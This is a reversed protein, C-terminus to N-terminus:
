KSFYILQTEDEHYIRDFNSSKNIKYFDNTNTVRNLAKKYESKNYIRFCLMDDVPNIKKIKSVQYNQFAMGNKKFYDNSNSTCNPLLKAYTMNREILATKASLGFWDNNNLTFSKDSDGWTCDVHCWEGNLKVINWAHLGQSYSKGETTICPINMNNCLHKFMHAYGMCVTKGLVVSYISQNYKANDVYKTNKIIYRYAKYAKEYDSLNNDISSLFDSTYKDLKNQAKEIKSNSMNLIPTLSLNDGNDCYTYQSSTGDNNSVGVYFLEPNDYLVFETYKSVKDPDSTSVNVGALKDKFITYVERYLKKNKDNLCSYYYMKSEDFEHIYKESLLSDNESIDEVDTDNYDFFDEGTDDTTDTIDDIISDDIIDDIDLDSIIDTNDDTDNDDTDDTDDPFSDTSDSTTETIMGDDMLDAILGSDAIDLNQNKFEIVICLLFGLVFYIVRKNM